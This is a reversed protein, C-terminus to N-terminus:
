GLADSTTKIQDVLKLEQVQLNDIKSTLDSVAKELVNHALSLQKLDQM